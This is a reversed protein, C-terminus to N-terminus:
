GARSASVFDPTQPGSVRILPTIWIPGRVKRNMVASTPARALGAVNAATRLIKKEARAEQRWGDVAVRLGSPSLVSWQWGGGTLAAYCGNTAHTEPGPGSVPVGSEPGLWALGGTVGNCTTERGHRVCIALCGIGPSILMM